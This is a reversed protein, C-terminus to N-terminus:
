CNYWQCRDSRYTLCHLYLLNETSVDIHLISNAQTVTPILLLLYLMLVVIELGAYILYKKNVSRHAPHDHTPDM